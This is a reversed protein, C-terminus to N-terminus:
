QNTSLVFAWPNKGKGKPPNNYALWFLAIGIVFFALGSALFYVFANFNNFWVGLGSVFLFVIGASMLAGHMTKPNLTLGVKVM